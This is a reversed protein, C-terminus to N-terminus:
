RARRAVRARRRAGARDEPARSARGTSTRARATPRPHHQWDNEASAAESLGARCASQSPSRVAHPARASASSCVAGSTARSRPAIPKAGVVSAAPLPTECASVGPSDLSVATAGLGAAARGDCGHRAPADPGNADLHESARPLGRRSPARRAPAAVTATTHGVATSSGRPPSRTPPSPRRSPASTGSCRRATTPPPRRDHRDGLRHGVRPRAGVAAPAGVPAGSFIRCRPPSADRAVDLAGRALAHAPGGGRTAAETPTARAGLRSRRGRPRTSRRPSPRRPVSPRRMPAPALELHAGVGRRRGLDVRHERAGHSGLLASGIASCQDCRRRTKARARPSRPRSARAAEARRPARRRPASPTASARM